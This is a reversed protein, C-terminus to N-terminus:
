LGIVAWMRGTKGGDRRYSFFDDEYTCRKMTWINKESIGHAILVEVNCKALDLLRGNWCAADFGAEAFQSIVESGVEFKAQSIGQGIAVQINGAEAGLSKMAEVTNAAIKAVTGRWGAHAAGIVGNIPDHFLLPYCDAIGIALVHNPNKTVLADATQEGAKAFLVENGHVQNLYCLNYSDMGLHQLAKTRNLQINDPLDGSGGFNLSHYPAPSVGGHRTSFGHRCQINSAKLWM